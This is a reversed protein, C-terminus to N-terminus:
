VILYPHVPHAAVELAEWFDSRGVKGAMLVEFWLPLLFKEDGALNQALMAIPSDRLDKRLKFRIFFSSEVSRSKKAIAAGAVAVAWNWSRML